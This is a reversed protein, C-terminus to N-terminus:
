GEYKSQTVYKICYFVLILAAIGLALPVVPNQVFGAVIYTLCSIVAVVVVYPLQTSVHSVHNCQAGASAMKNFQNTYDVETMTAVSEEAVIEVGLESCSATFADRLGASYTDASCYVIGVKTYGNDAAYKAALEGQFSDKFCTRFVYDM